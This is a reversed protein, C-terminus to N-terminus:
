GILEIAVWSLLPQLMSVNRSKKIAEILKEFNAKDKDAKDRVLLTIPPAQAENEKGSELQKLFEVKKKSALFCIASECLVMITDTLEYGFLWTEANLLAPDTPPFKHRMYDCVLVFYHQVAEFFEQEESPKLKDVVTRSNTVM